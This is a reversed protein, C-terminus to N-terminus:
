YKTVISLLIYTLSTAHHVEIITKRFEIFYIYVGFKQKEGWCVGEEKCLQAPPERSRGKTLLVDNQLVGYNEEGVGGEESGM